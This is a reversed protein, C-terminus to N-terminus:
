FNGFSPTLTFAASTLFAFFIVRQIMQVCMVLPNNGVFSGGNRGMGRDLDASGLIFSAV